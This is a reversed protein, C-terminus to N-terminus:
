VVIWLETLEIATYQSDSFSIALGVTVACALLEGWGLIQFVQFGM